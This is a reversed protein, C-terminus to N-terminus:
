LEFCINFHKDCRASNNWFSEIQIHKQRLRVMRLSESQHTQSFISLDSPASNWLPDNEIMRCLHPDSAHKGGGTSTSHPVALHSLLAMQLLQQTESVRCGMLSLQRCCYPPLTPVSTRTPACFHPGSEPEVLLIYWCSNGCVLSRNQLPWSGM